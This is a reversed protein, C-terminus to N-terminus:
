VDIAPAPGLPLLDDAGLHHPAHESPRLSRGLTRRLRGISKRWIIEMIVPTLQPSRHIDSWASITQRGSGCSMLSALTVPKMLQSFRWRPVRCGEVARQREVVDDGRRLGRHEGWYGGLV